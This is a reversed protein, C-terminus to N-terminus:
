RSTARMSQKQTKLCLMWSATPYFRAIVQGGAAPIIIIYMHIWSRRSGPYPLGVSSWGTVISQLNKVRYSHQLVCRDAVNINSYWQEQIGKELLGEFGSVWTQHFQWWMQEPKINMHGHKWNHQISGALTPELVHCIHMHAYAM